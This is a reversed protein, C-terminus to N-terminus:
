LLKRTKQQNNNTKSKVYYCDFRSSMLRIRNRLKRIDRNTGFRNKYYYDSNRFFNCQTKEIKCAVVDIQMNLSINNNIGKNHVFNNKIIPNKSNNNIITILSLTFIISAAIGLIIKFKKSTQKKQKEFKTLTISVIDHEPALEEGLKTQLSNLEQLFKQSKTCNQLENQVRNKEETTLENSWYLLLLKKDHNM